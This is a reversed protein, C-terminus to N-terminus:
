LWSESSAESRLKDEHWGLNHMEEETLLWWSDTEDPIDDSHQYLLINEELHDPRSARPIIVAGTQLFFRYVISQATVPLHASGRQQQQALSKARQMRILIKQIVENLDASQKLESALNRVSAYPQYAVHYRQTWARVKEDLHGLAGYNQVLQPLVVGSRLRIDELQEVNFNSVGISQVYGEAYAKELAKWSEVWTGEPDVATHCHMWEVNNDCSPWHLLYGDVYHVKLEALTGLLAHSTPLFGLDTPWVKSILFISNRSGDFAYSEDRHIGALIEGVIGENHYERALDLLQYGHGLAENVVRATDETYIGGTGLGIRPLSVGNRLNFYLPHQLSSFKVSLEERHNPVVMRREERLVAYISPVSIRIQQSSGGATEEITFDENSAGLLQEKTSTTDVGAQTRLRKLYKRVSMVRARPDPVWPHVKHEEADPNVFFWPSNAHDARHLLDNNDFEDEILDATLANDVVFAIGSDEGIDESGIMWNRKGELAPINYLYMPRDEPFYKIKQYVATSTQAAHHTPSVYRRVYFGTLHHAFPVSSEFYLSDGDNTKDADEPVCIVEASSDVQWQADDGHRVQWASQVAAADAVDVIAQPLIAWSDIQAKVNLSERHFPKQEFTYSALIWRGTGSRDSTQEHFLYHGSKDDTATSASFYIPRGTDRFEQLTELHDVPVQHLTFDMKFDDSYFRVSRCASAVQVIVLVLLLLMFGM